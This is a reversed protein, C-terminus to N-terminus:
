GALAARGGVTELPAHRQEDLWSQFMLVTWLKFTQDSKGGLHASWARRIPDPHFFGDSRLRRENLLAEAWDRLPGRLWTDLPIGFLFL